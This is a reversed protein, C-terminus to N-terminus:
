ARPRRRLFAALQGREEASLVGFAVVTAPFIALAVFKVALAPGVALPALLSVLYSLGAAAGLRLLRGAEFPIPYVKRSLLFGLAAM